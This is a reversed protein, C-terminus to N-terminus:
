DREFVYDGCDLKDGDLTCELPLGRRVLVHEIRYTPADSADVEIESTNLYEGLFTEEFTGSLDDDIHMEIETAYGYSDAGEIPRVNIEITKWDGVIPDDSKDCATFALGLVALASLEIRAPRM